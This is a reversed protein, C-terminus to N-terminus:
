SLAFSALSVNHFMLLAVCHIVHWLLLRLLEQLFIHEEVEEVMWRTAITSQKGCAM